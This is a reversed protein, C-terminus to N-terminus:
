EGDVALGLLANSGVTVARVRSRHSDAEDGAAYGETCGMQVAPLQLQYGPACADQRSINKIIRGDGCPPSPCPTLPTTQRYEERTNVNMGVRNSM